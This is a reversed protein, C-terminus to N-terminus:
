YFFVCLLFADAVPFPFVKQPMGFDDGEEFGADVGQLLGQGVVFLDLAEGQQGMWEAHFFSFEGVSQLYFAIDEVPIEGIFNFRHVFLWLVITVYFSTIRGM